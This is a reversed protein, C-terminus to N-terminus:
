DPQSDRGRRTGESIAGCPGVTPRAVTHLTARGQELTLTHLASTFREGSTTATSRSLRVTRKEWTVDAFSGDVARSVDLARRDPCLYSTLEPQNAGPQATTATGTSGCGGILLLGCLAPAFALNVPVRRASIRPRKTTTVSNM